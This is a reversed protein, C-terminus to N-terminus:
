ANLRRRAGVGVLVLGTALLAWTSPEPTVVAARTTTSTLNLSAHDETSCIATPMCVGIGPGTVWLGVNGDLFRWTEWAVIGGWHLDGNRRVISGSLDSSVGFSFSAPSSLGDAWGNISHPTTGGVSLSGTTTLSTLLARLAGRGTATEIGTEIAVTLCAPNSTTPAFVMGCGAFNMRTMPHALSFFADSSVSFDRPAIIVNQAAAVAPLFVLSCLTRIVRRRM